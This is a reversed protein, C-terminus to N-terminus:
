RSDPVAHEDALRNVDGGAGTTAVPIGVELEATLAISPDFAGTDADTLLPELYPWINGAIMRAGAANPHVGDAGNMNPVLAVGSLLFPVLPVGYQMALRPYIHHFAITYQWGNTPPTEMGCLLVRVNRQLAAEIIAALNTEVTPVPVGRLGDNAGLAVVLVAVDSDLLAEVRRLGGTTTDGNIGANVVLWPLRRSDIEAQLQSPFSQGRSPSVSLSDGLVVIRRPEARVTSPPLAASASEASASWSVLLAALVSRVPLFPLVRM